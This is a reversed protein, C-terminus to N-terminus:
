RNSTRVVFLDWEYVRNLSCLLVQSRGGSPPERKATLLFQLECASLVSVRLCWNSEPHGTLCQLYGLAILESATQCGLTSNRLLQSRTYLYLCSSGRAAFRPSSLWSRQLGFVVVIFPSTRWLHNESSWSASTVSYCPLYFFFCYKISTTVKSLM